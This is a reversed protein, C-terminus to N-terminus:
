CADSEGTREKYSRVTKSQVVKYLDKLSIFHSRDVTTSHITKPTQQEILRFRSAVETPLSSASVHSYRLCNSCSFYKTSPYPSENNMLEM